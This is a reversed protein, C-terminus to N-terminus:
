CVDSHFLTMKLNRPSFLKRRPVTVCRGHGCFPTQCGSPCKDQHELVAQAKCRRFKTGGARATKRSCIAASHQAGRSLARRCGWLVKTQILARCSHLRLSSVGVEAPEWLKSGESGHGQGGSLNQAADVGLVLLFNEQCRSERWLCHSTATGDASQLARWLKRSEPCCKHASGLDPEEGGIELLHHLTPVDETVQQVPVEQFAFRFINEYSLIPEAPSIAAAGTVWPGGERSHQSGCEKQASATRPPQPAAAREPSEFPQSFQEFTASSERFGEFRGWASSHEGPDPGGSASASFGKSLGSRRAAGDSPPLRSRARGWEVGAGSQGGPAENADREESAQHLAVEGAEAALGSPSGSLLLRRGPEAGLERPGQM